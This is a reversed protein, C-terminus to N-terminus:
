CRAHYEALEEIDLWKCSDMLERRSTTRGLGSVFRAAQNLVVQARRTYNQTANRWLCVMYSLKSLVLSNALQLRAKMSLCNGIKSAMGLQKRVAPLIAKKGM